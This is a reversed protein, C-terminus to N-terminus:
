LFHDNSQATGRGGSGGHEPLADGSGRRPRGSPTHGRELCKVLPLAGRFGQPKALLLLLDQPIEQGLHLDAM